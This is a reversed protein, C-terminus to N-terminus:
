INKHPEKNLEKCRVFHDEAAEQFAAKLEPVSAGEFSVLDNIDIIKGYFVDNEASLHVIGFYGKYELIDNM